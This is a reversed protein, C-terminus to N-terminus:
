KKLWHRKVYRICRKILKWLHRHVFVYSEVRAPHGKQPIRWTKGYWYELVGEADAPVDFQEGLFEVKRTSEFYKKPMYMELLCCYRWNIIPEAERIIYFDCTFHNYEFTYIWPQVYCKLVIGEAGLEDKIDLLKERDKDFIVIDMDYDHPIFGGQRIIGLLTGFNPFFTIGHRDFIKKVTKIIYEADKHDVIHGGVEQWGSTNLYQPYKSEYKYNM